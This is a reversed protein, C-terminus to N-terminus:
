GAAYVNRFLVIAPNDAMYYGGVSYGITAFDLRGDGDFDAVAIRAASDDSVRWKVFVGNAVDIAKYLFVGQWPMPGRLAVLFEDDGDNDFDACVVHHGPGEGLANPDGFVDLV